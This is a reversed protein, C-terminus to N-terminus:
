RFMNPSFSFLALFHTFTLQITHFRRLCHSPLSRIPLPVLYCSKSPKQLRLIWDSLLFSYFFGESSPLQLWMCCHTSSSHWRSSCFKSSPGLRRQCVSSRETHQHMSSTLLSSQHCRSGSATALLQQPLVLSSGTFLCMLVRHLFGLLSDELLTM